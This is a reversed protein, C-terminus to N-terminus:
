SERDSFFYVGFRARHRREEPPAQTADADFRTQAEQMVTKFAQKWALVSVQRLQDASLATIEDVYVAQDLFDAEGSLNAVSAAAHDHLNQAFLWSLEEFNQRPAFGTRDLELGHEGEHVVGLRLLEDLVAKPRVDRSVGAVLADFSGADGSKPLARRAGHEDQFAPDNMWRAVVQAALGLRLGTAPAEPDATEARGLNRVDRRHVGSLLSVASDTAPMGRQALEQQAAQLFVRKLAAAFVTYTVGNRLLLRVLPQLVRLVRDLTLTPQSNMRWLPTPEAASAATSLLISSSPGQHPINDWVSIKGDLAAPASLGLDVM